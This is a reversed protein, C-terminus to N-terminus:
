FGLNACQVVLDDNLGEAVLAMKWRWLPLLLPCRCGSAIATPPFHRPALCRDAARGIGWSPITECLDGVSPSCPSEPSPLSNFPPSRSGQPRFLAGRKSIPRRFRPLANGTPTPNAIIPPNCGTAHRLKAGIPPSAYLVAYAFAAQPRSFAGRISIPRRFRPMANRTPHAHSAHAPQAWGRPAIRYRHTRCLMQFPRRTSLVAGRSQLSPLLFTTPRRWHTPCQECNGILTPMHKHM